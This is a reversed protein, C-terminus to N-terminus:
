GEDVTFSPARQSELAPPERSEIEARPGPSREVADRFRALELKYHAIVLARGLTEWALMALGSVERVEYVRRVITESGDAVFSWREQGSWPGEFAFVMDRDTAAEVTYRFSVPGLVDLRFRDGPALTPSPSMFTVSADPAVWEAFRATAALVRMAQPPAVKVAVMEEVRSM